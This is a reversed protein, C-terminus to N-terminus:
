IVKSKREEVVRVAAILEGVGQHWPGFCKLVISIISGVGLTLIVYAVELLNAMISKHGSALHGWVLDEYYLSLQPLLVASSPRGNMWPHMSAKWLVVLAMGKVFLSQHTRFVWCAAILTTMIILLSIVYDVSLHFRSPQRTNYTLLSDSRCLSLFARTNSARLHQFSKLTSAIGLVDTSNMGQQHLHSKFEPSNILKRLEISTLDEDEESESDPLLGYAVRHRKPPRDTHEQSGSHLSRSCRFKKSAYAAIFTCASVILVLQYLGGIEVDAPLYQAIDEEELGDLIDLSFENNM